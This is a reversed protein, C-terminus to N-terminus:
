PMHDKWCMMQGIIAYISCMSCLVSMDLAICQRFESCLGQNQPAFAVKWWDM